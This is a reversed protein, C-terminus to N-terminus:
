VKAFLPNSKRIQEIRERARARDEETYATPAPAELMRTNVRETLTISSIHPVSLYFDEFWIGREGAKMVAKLKAAEEGNIVFQKNDCVVTWKEEVGNSSAPM